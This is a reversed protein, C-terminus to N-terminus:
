CIVLVYFLFNYLTAVVFVVAAHSSRMQWFVLPLTLWLLIHTWLVIGYGVLLAEILITSVVPHHTALIPRGFLLGM